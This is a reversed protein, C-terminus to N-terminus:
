TAMRRRDALQMLMLLLQSGLVKGPDFTNNLGFSELFAPPQESLNFGAMHWDPFSQGRIDRQSILKLAFHRKDKAIREFTEEVARKEGEIVQVFYEGCYALCGTVGNIKNRASAAHFLHTMTSAMEAAPIAIRSCYILQILPM